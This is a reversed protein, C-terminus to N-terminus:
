ELRIRACPDDKGGFVQMVGGDDKGNVGVSWVQVGKVQRLKTDWDSFDDAGEEDSDDIEDLNIVIPFMTVEPVEITGYRYLMPKGFFPDNPMDQMNEPFDGYERRYAEARLLTQMALIRATLQKFVYGEHKRTRLWSHSFIFASPSDDKFVSFEEALYQRLMNNKDLSAQLWLQPFFWRLGAFAMVPNRTKGTELQLYFDDLYVADSYMAQRHNVTIQSKLETLDDALRKLDDDTMQRSELLREMADLHIHKINLWAMSGITLPEYQLPRTCNAIRQYACLADDKSQKKLFVRLRSLEFVAIDDCVSNLSFELTGLNTKEFDYFMLPPVTDFCKEMELLRKENTKCYDEFASLVDPTLPDSLNGNWDDEIKGGITLERPLRGVISDMQQWFDNNFTNQKQYYHEQYYDQLGKHSLPYGFRQEVMARTQATRRSQGMAMGLLVIYAIWFVCWFVVGVKSVADHLKKQEAQVFTRMIFFGGAVMCLVAVLNALWWRDPPIALPFSWEVLSVHGYVSLIKFLYFLPVLCFLAACLWEIMSVCVFLVPRFNHMRRCNGILLWLARLFVALSYLIIALHGAAWIWVGCSIKGAEVAHVNLQVLGCDSLWLLQLITFWLSNGVFLCTIAWFAGKAPVDWFFIKRLLQKM